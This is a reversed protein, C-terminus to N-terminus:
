WAAHAQYAPSRLNSDQELCNLLQSSEDEKMPEQKIYICTCIYMRTHAHASEMSTSLDVHQWAWVTIDISHCTQYVSECSKGYSCRRGTRARM